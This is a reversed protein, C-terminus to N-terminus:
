AICGFYSGHATTGCARIQAPPPGYPGDRGRGDRRTLADSGYLFARRVCRAFCHYVGEQGERVYQSRPLAM